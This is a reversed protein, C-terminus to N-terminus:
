ALYKPPLIFVTCDLHTFLGEPWLLFMLVLHWKVLTALPLTPTKCTINSKLQLFLPLNGNWSMMSKTERELLALVPLCSIIPSEEVTCGQTKLLCAMSISWLRTFWILCVLGPHSFVLRASIWTFTVCQFGQVLMCFFYGKGRQERRRGRWGEDANIEWDMRRKEKRRGKNKEM